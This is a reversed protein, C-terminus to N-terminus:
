RGAAARIARNMDGTSPRFRGSEDREREDLDPMGLEIRMAAADARVSAPDDGRLRAAQAPSLGYESTGIHIRGLQTLDDGPIARLTRALRAPVRVAVIL